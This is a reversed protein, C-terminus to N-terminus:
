DAHIGAETVVKGMRATEARITDALERPSSTIDDVGASAFKEKVEPRELIRMIEQNLRRVLADPTNAPALMASLPVSVYGPVGAAAVTPLEPVLPSPKASTVALARLRGSKIGPIAVGALCFMLQVRGAVLDIVASASGKYSVQVMSVHTLSKFLETALHAAGGTPGSAYNLEGPKARALAILELVSKVPMSPHVVLINPTSALLTIPAFDRVADYSVPHMLPILWLSSAASLLTYGDAPARAVIEAAVIGTRNEVIVPQRLSASLDQAVIRSIYDGGSGAESTVMRVPKVPYSQAGTVSAYVTALAVMFRLRNKRMLM